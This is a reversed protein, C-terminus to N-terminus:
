YLWFPWYYPWSSYSRKHIEPFEDPLGEITLHNKVMRAGGDFASKVAADLEHVDEVQGTLTAVGDEMSVTIDSGDM